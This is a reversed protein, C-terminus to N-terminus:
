SSTRFKEAIPYKYSVQQDNASMRVTITKGAAVQKVLKKQINLTFCLLAIIECKKEDEM